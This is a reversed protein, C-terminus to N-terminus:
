WACHLLGMVRPDLRGDRALSVGLDVFEQRDPYFHLIVRWSADVPEGTALATVHALARQQPDVM